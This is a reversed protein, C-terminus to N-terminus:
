SVPPAAVYRRCSSVRERVRDLHFSSEAHSMLAGPSPPFDDRFQLTRRSPRLALRSFPYSPPRVRTGALILPEVLTLNSRGVRIRRRAHRLDRFRSIRPENIIRNISLASAVSKFTTSVRPPFVSNANLIFRDKGEQDFM